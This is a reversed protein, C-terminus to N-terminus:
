LIIRTRCEWWTETLLHRERAGAEATVGTATLGRSGTGTSTVRRATKEPEIAMRAQTRTIYMTRLTTTIVCHVHDAPNNNHCVNCVGTFDAPVSGTTDGMDSNTGDAQTFV